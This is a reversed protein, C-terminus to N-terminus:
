YLAKKYIKESPNVVTLKETTTFGEITENIGIIFYGGPIISNNIKAIIKSQLQPNYYLMRNRFLVLRFGLLPPPDNIIDHKLFRVNELLSQRFIAKKEEQIFYQNINSSGELRKFNAINVEMRKIDIHGRKANDLIKSSVSTAYIKSIPLLETDYLIILLSYLEDDTTIEPIWIKLEDENKYRPLIIEKLEKWMSPDRFIETTEVAIDRLFNEFFQADSTIKNILLDATPFSYLQLAKEFRRKLSSLAYESFDIKYVDNIASIINRYESIGIKVEFEDM